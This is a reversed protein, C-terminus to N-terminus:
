TTPSQLLSIAAATMATVGTRLTPEPLPEFRSTHPGPLAKGAAQAAAFKSPDMAGLWFFAVPIQKDLSFVGVDESGMVRQQQLVNDAGLAQVLVPQLQAMLAPNNFMVPTSEDTLVTVRAAKDPPLNYATTLGAALSNLGDIVVQRSKDSFARTTLELKVEDPIINRKTGGHIDGVTVVSPDQPDEERSVITQLETIYYAALTVPDRGLQPASGHGGIGHILVDISTSSALTPGPVFGLKGAPLTNTDHLGIIKDPRGFRAYLNDALMAKAGDITEESPQGVLMLTGHWQSKALALAHATGIMVTTHVDHGCAHMVGTDQGSKTKTMVKSAYPVGTEEIIPLADMDARILLTPGPGNKLIGVVGYAHSGDPYLGVHETVTYGDARLAKALIASTRVENHSLEPHAHLDKYIETLAPFEANITSPVSQAYAASLVGLTSACVALRVSFRAFTPRMTQSLIGRVRWLRLLYGRISGSLPLIKGGM